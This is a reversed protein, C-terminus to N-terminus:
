PLPKVTKLTAYARGTVLCAIIKLDSRTFRREGSTLERLSGGVGEGNLLWACPRPEDRFPVLRCDGLHRSM